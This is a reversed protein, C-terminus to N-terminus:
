RFLEKSIILLELSKIADIQEVNGIELPSSLIKECYERSWHKNSTTKCFKEGGILNIEYRDNILEYMRRVLHERDNVM